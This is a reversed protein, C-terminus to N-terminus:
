RKCTPLSTIGNIFRQAEYEYVDGLTGFQKNYNQLGSYGNIEYFYRLFNAIVVRGMRKKALLVIPDSPQRGGKGPKKLYRDVYIKGVTNVGLVGVYLM